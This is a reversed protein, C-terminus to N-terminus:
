KISLGSALLWQTDARCSDQWEAPPLGKPDYERGARGREESTSYRWRGFRARFLEEEM